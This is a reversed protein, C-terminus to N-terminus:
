VAVPALPFFTLTYTSNYADLKESFTDTLTCPEAFLRIIENGTYESSFATLMFAVIEAGGMDFKLPISRYLTSYPAATLIEHPVQDRTPSTLETINSIGFYVPPLAILGKNGLTNCIIPAVSIGLGAETTSQAGVEVEVWVTVGNSDSVDVVGDSIPYTGLTLDTMDFSDYFDETLPITRKATAGYYDVSQPVPEQMQIIRPNGQTDIKRADRCAISEGGIQDLVLIGKEAM